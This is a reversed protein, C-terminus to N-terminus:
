DYLETVTQAEFEPGEFIDDDIEGTVRVFDDEEIKQYGENDLPNYPMDDVEVRLQQVGTDITFEDESVSTVSGQIVTSSVIVPDSIVIDYFDEEDRSSAYFYTDLKEVYVSGAELTTQEYFDDDIRGNVTVEDGSLLKYADADRDGDDMEVRLLGDGYDLMFSDASVSSVTGSISIWSDDPQLYPSKALANAAGLFSLCLLSFLVIMTRKKM